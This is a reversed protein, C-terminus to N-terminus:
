RVSINMAEGNLFVTGTGNINGSLVSPVNSCSDVPIVKLGSKTEPILLDFGKKQPNLRWNNFNPNAMIETPITGSLCNNSAWFTELQPMNALSKPLNGSFQCGNILLQTLNTLKDIDEPIQGEIPNGAIWLTRLSSLECISAPLEGSIGSTEILFSEISKLNGINEPLKGSFCNDYLIISRLSSLECFSDPISGTLDSKQGHLETLNKLNGINEPLKGSILNYTKYKGAGALSGSNGFWFIQLHELYCIEEPISGTLESNGIYLKELNAANKISPPISGSFKNGSIDLYKLSPQWLGDPIEGSLQNFGAHIDEINKLNAVSAPIQGGIQNYPKGTEGLHITEGVKMSYFGIDLKKLSTMNGIDTPLCGTLCNNCLDLYELKNLNCISEPISGMLANFSLNLRVLDKLKGISESIHGSLNNGSLSINTVENRSNCYVGYWKNIPQDSCWNTNNNWSDGNAEKYFDILAQRVISEQTITVEQKFDGNKSSFVIKGTRVSNYNPAILFVLKDEIFSKTVDRTIWNDVISVSYDINHGIQIEINGGEPNVTYTSPTIIIVDKQAQSVKITESIGNDTNTFRITASRGETSTNETAYFVYTNTSMGKTMVPHIWNCGPEIEFTVDVNHRIEVNFQSESSPVSYESSNLIIRPQGGSQFIDVTESGLESSVIIHGERPEVAENELVEFNLTQTSLGKTSARVIWDSDSETSFSINSSIELPILGGKAEIEHRSSSLLLANLQKQTLVIERKISGCKLIVTANREDYTENPSVSLMIQSLGADGNEPTITLWDNARLNLIQATWPGIATFSVFVDGGNSGIVQQKDGTNNFSIGTEAEAKNLIDKCSSASLGLITALLLAVGANFIRNRNM